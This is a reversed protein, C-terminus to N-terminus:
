LIEICIDIDLFRHGSSGGDYVSASGGTRWWRNSAVVPAPTVFYPIGRYFYGGFISFHDYKFFIRSVSFGTVYKYKASQLRCSFMNTNYLSFFIVSLYM